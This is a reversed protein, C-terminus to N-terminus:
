QVSPGHDWGNVHAKEHCLLHAFSHIDKAEKYFCPNGVVVTGNDLKCGDYRYGVPAIGCYHNLEQQTTVVTILFTAGGQYQVPITFSASFSAFLLLLSKM